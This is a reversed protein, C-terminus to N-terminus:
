ADQKRNTVQPKGKFTNQEVNYHLFITYETISDPVTEEMCNVIITEALMYDGICKRFVTDLSDSNYSTTRENLLQINNYKFEAFKVLKEREGPNFQLELAHKGNLELKFPKDLPELYFKSQYNEVRSLWTIRTVKCVSFNGNTVMLGIQASAPLLKPILLNISIDPLTRAKHEHMAITLAKTALENAKEASSWSKHASIASSIAAFAALLTVIIAAYEM